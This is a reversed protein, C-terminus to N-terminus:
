YDSLGISHTFKFIEFNKKKYWSIFGQSKMFEKTINFQKDTEKFGRRVTVAIIGDSKLYRKLEKLVEIRDSEEKIVNLVYTCLVIDYDYYSLDKDEPFWSPDYKDWGNRDADQGRGCGYDLTKLEQDKSRYAELLELPASLHKRPIATQWGELKKIPEQKYKKVYIKKGQFKPNYDILRKVDELSILKREKIDSYYGMSHNTAKKDEDLYGRIDFHWENNITYEVGGFYMKGKNNIYLYYEEKM